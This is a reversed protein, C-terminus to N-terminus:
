MGIIKAIEANIISKSCILPMAVNRNLKKKIKKMGPYEM